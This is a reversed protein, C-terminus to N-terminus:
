QNLGDAIAQAEDHSEYWSCHTGRGFADVVHTEDCHPCDCEVRCRVGWASRPSDTAAGVIRGYVEYDKADM